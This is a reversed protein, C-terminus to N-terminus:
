QSHQILHLMQAHLTPNAAILDCPPQLLDSSGDMRTVLAGAESAILAGAALDYPNLSVEWYGDLRGCAVYCLDLAASGVLRVSQGHQYFREFIDFAERRENSNLNHPFGSVLLADVLHEAHKVSIPNSNLWAGKGREAFFTEDRIPDYIVGLQLQPGEAYAISVCFAPVGHAYNVTGDIPDIYWTNQHGGNLYGSEESFITHDPFSDQIYGLLLAESQRDVETVLDTTGKKQILHQRGFGDRLIQGAEHAWQVIQKINPQM